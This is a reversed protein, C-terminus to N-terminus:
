DVVTIGGFAAFGTVVLDVSDHEEARRPREDEAGGFIPLVDVQVNWDTPVRVDVGGFVATANVRAPRDSVTADRLDLDVGGFVATLEGGAFGATTVRRDAGGFLGVATVFADSVEYARARYRGLIVSLGLLVILLPWFAEFDRWEVVGLTALQWGGAVVIVVLPGAVNRLRSSVLAYVGAVVFLSPVFQLLQTTDYVGTTDLLLLLGLLVIFGGLLAQASIRRSSM